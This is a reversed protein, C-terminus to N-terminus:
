VAIRIFEGPSPVCISCYQFASKDETVVIYSFILSGNCRDCFGAGGDDHVSEVELTTSYPTFDSVIRM